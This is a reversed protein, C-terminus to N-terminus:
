NKDANDQRMRAKLVKVLADGFKSRPPIVTWGKQTIIVEDDVGEPVPIGLEIARDKIAKRLKEEEQENSAGLDIPKFSENPSM